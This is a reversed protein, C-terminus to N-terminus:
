GLEYVSTGRAVVDPGVPLIKRSSEARAVFLQKQFLIILMAIAGV